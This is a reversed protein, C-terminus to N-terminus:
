EIEMSTVPRNLSEIEEHTIVPKVTHKEFNGM